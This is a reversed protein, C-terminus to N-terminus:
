RRPSAVSMPANRRYVLFGFVIAIAIFLLSVMAVRANAEAM